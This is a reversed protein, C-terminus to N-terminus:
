WLSIHPEAAAVEPARKRGHLDSDAIRREDIVQKRTQAALPADGHRRACVREIDLQGLNDSAVGRREFNIKVQADELGHM